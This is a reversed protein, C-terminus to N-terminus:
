QNKIRNQLWERARKLQSRSTAETIGLEEAIEKHTYDELVYM